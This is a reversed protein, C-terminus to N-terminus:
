QVELKKILKHNNMGNNNLVSIFLSSFPNKKKERGM